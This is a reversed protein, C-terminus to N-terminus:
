SSRYSKIKRASFMCTKAGEKVSSFMMAPSRATAILLDSFNGLARPRITEEIYSPMLFRDAGKGLFVNFHNTWIDVMVEQLQRESLAARVVALEQLEGALRRAEGGPGQAGGGNGQAEGGPGREANRLPPVLTLSMSDAQQRERRERQADLYLRALDDRSYSLLDFRREREALRADDIREPALQQDIWRMVGGQAVRDVDGPRPGYALRNLAHVASDRASLGQGALLSALSLVLAVVM